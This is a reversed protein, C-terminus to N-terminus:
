TVAPFRMVSMPISLATSFDSLSLDVTNSVNRSTSETSNSCCSYSSIWIVSSSSCLILSIDSSGWSKSLMTLDMEGVILPRSSTLLAMARCSNPPEWLVSSSPVTMLPSM